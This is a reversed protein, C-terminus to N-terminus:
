AVNYDVYTFTVQTRLLEEDAWALNVDQIAVPYAKLYTMTMTPEKGEVASLKEIIISTTYQNMWRMDWSGDGHIYDMWRHFFKLENMNDKTYFSVQFDNSNTQVPADFYPGWYRYTEVEMTRGAMVADAALFTLSRLFDTNWQFGGGSANITVRFRNALTLSVPALQSRFASVDM